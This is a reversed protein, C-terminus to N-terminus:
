PVLQQLGHLLRRLTPLDTSHDRRLAHRAQATTEDPDVTPWAPLHGFHLGADPQADVVAPITETTLEYSDLAWFQTTPPDDCEPHLVTTPADYM